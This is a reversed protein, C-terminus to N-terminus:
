HFPIRKMKREPSEEERGKVSKLKTLKNTQEQTKPPTKVPWLKREEKKKNKHYHPKFGPSRAQSTPTRSSSGCKWRVRCSEKKRKITNLKSSLAESKSPLHEEV